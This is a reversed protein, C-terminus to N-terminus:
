NGAGRDGVRLFAEPHDKRLRQLAETAEARPNLVGLQAICGTYSAVAERFQGAQELQQGALFARVGEQMSHTRACGGGTVNSYVTLLTFLRQWDKKEAAEVAARRLFTGFGEGEKPVGLGPLDNAAMVANARLANKLAEIQSRYPGGEDSSSESIVRGYAGSQFDDEMRMLRSLANQLRNALRNDPGSSISALVSLAEAAQAADAPTKVGALIGAIAKQIPSSATDQEKVFTKLLAEEKAAIMARDLLPATSSRLNRLTQLAQQVDGDEEAVLVRQWTDLAGTMANIRLQLVRMSSASSSLTENRFMELSERVKEVEQPSRAVALQKAATKVLEAFQASTQADQAKKEEQLSHLLTELAKRIQENRSRSLWRQVTRVAEEYNRTQITSELSGYFSSFDRYESALGQLAPNGTGLASAAAFEEGTKRLGTLQDSINQGLVTAASVLLLVLSKRM